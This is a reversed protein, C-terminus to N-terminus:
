ANGERPGTAEPPAAKKPAKKARTVKPAPDEAVPSVDPEQAGSNAVPEARKAESPTTVGLQVAAGLSQIAKWIRETAIKRSTFKTVANVGPISNWIEVLRSAPWAAAM